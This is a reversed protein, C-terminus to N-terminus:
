RKSRGLRSSCKSESGFPQDVGARRGSSAIRDGHQRNLWVMGWPLLFFSFYITGAIIGNECMIEFFLNHLAKENEARLGVFDYYLPVFASSCGPGVGFWPYEWIIEAGAKWLYFRSEASVDMEEEAGFISGFERVVSPGALLVVLTAGLVLITNTVPSKPCYWVALSATLVAGLM